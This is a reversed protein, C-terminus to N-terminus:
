LSIDFAPHFSVIGRPWDGRLCIAQFYEPPVGPLVLEDRPRFGFRSYFAPDGLLVCGSAETKELHQLAAQMLQSGIGQGQCEPSVSIPGLGYWGTAATSGPPASSLMIPSLAVHGVIEDEDDRTAVLSVSLLLADVILHETHSAHPAHEFARQTLRSIAQRDDASEPRIHLNM